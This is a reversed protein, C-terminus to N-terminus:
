KAEKCIAEVITRLKKPDSIEQALVPAWDMSSSALAGPLMADPSGTLRECATSDISYLFKSERGPREVSAGGSFMGGVLITTGFALFVLGPGTGSMVFKLFSSEVELSSKGKGIGLEYLKYGFYGFAIAGAIIVIRELGRWVIPDELM